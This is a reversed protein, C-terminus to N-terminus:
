NREGSAACPIATMELALELEGNSSGSGAGYCSIESKGVIPVFSSIWTRILSELTTTIQRATLADPTAIVLVRARELAANELLVPKSCQRSASSNPARAVRVAKQDQDIM